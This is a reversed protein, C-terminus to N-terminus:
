MNATEEPPRLLQAWGPRAASREKYDGNGIWEHPDLRLEHVLLLDPPPSFRAQLPGPSGTSWPQWLHGRCYFGGESAGASGTPSLSIHSWGPRATIWPSGWVLPTLLRVQVSRSHTHTHTSRPLPNCAHWLDDPSWVPVHGTRSCRTVTKNHSNASPDFAADSREAQGRM